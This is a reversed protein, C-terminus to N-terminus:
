SYRRRRDADCLAIYPSAIVLSREKSGVAERIVWM